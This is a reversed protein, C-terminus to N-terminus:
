ADIIIVHESYKINILGGHNRSRIRSRDQQYEVRKNYMNLQSAQKVLKLLHIITKPSDIYASAM